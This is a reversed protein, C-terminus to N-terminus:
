QSLRSILCTCLCMRECHEYMLSWYDDGLNQERNLVPVQLFVFTLEIGFQLKAIVVRPM